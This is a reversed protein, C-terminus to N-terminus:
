KYSYVENQIKLASLQADLTYSQKELEQTEAAISETQRKLNTKIKNYMSDIDGAMRRTICHM